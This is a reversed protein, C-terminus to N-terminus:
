KTCLFTMGMHVDGEGIFVGQRRTLFTLPWIWAMSIGQTGAFCPEGGCMEEGVVEAGLVSQGTEGWM